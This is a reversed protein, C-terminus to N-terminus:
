PNGERELRHRRVFYVVWFALMWLSAMLPYWRRLALWVAFWAGGWLLRTQWGPAAM